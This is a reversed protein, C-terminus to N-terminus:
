PQDINTESKYGFKSVQSSQQESSLTVEQLMVLKPKELTLIALLGALATANGINQSLIKLIAM